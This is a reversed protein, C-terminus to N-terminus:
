AYEFLRESRLLYQELLILARVLKGVKVLGIHSSGDTTAPIGSEVVVFCIIRVNGIGVLTATECKGINVRSREPPVM